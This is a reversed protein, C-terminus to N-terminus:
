RCGRRPRAWSEPLWSTPASAPRFMSRCGATIDDVAASAIAAFDAVAQVAVKSEAGGGINAGITAGVKFESCCLPNDADSSCGGVMTPIAVAAMLAAGYLRKSLM